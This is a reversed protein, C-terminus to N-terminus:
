EGEEDFQFIATWCEPDIGSVLMERVDASMDPFADQIYMGGQWAEYAETSVAVYSGKGCRPCQTRIRM